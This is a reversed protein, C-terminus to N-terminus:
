EKKERLLSIEEPPVWEEVRSEWRVRILGRAHNHASVIGIPGTKHKVADGISFDGTTMEINGAM